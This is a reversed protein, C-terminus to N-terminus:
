PSVFIPTGTTSIVHILKEDREIFQAMEYDYFLYDGYDNVYDSEVCWIYVKDGSQNNITTGVLEYYMCHLVIERQANTFSNNNIKNHSSAVHIGIDCDIFNNDEITNFTAYCRGEKTKDNGSYHAQRSSLDIALPRNRFNNARILNHHPHHERINSAEGRNRFISLGPQYARIPYTPANFDNNQITYQYCADLVIDGYIGYDSLTRNDAFLCNEININHSDYEGYIAGNINEKLECNRLVMNSGRFIIGWVNTIFSCDEIVFEQLQDHDTIVARAFGMLTLNHIGSGSGPNIQKITFADWSGFDSAWTIRNTYYDYINWSRTHPKRADIIVGNGNVDIAIDKNITFLQKSTLYSLNPEWVTQRSEFTVSTDLDFTRIIYGGANYWSNWRSSNWPDFNCDYYSLVDKVRPLVVDAMVTGYRIEDFIVTFGTASSDGIAMEIIDSAGLARVAHADTCLAVCHSDLSEQTLPGTKIADYNAESLVWMNADGGAVDNVDSFRVVILYTNGDQVNYNADGSTTSDYGVAVGQSGTEKAKARLKPTYARIEATRSINSTLPAQPQKYLFSVWLNGVDRGQGVLRSAIVDHFSDDNNTMKIQAAGGFVPFDTFTLGSVVNVDGDPDTEVWPGGWGEGGNADHLPGYDYNFPEYMFVEASASSILLFLTFIMYHIKFM